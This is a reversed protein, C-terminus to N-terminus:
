RQRRRSSVAKRHAEFALGIIGDRPWLAWACAAALSAIGILIAAGVFQGSVVDAISFVLLIGAEVAIILGKLGSM